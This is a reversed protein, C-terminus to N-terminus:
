SCPPLPRPSCFSPLCNVPLISLTFTQYVTRQQAMWICHSVSLVKILCAKSTGERDVVRTRIITYRGITISGKKSCTRERFEKLYTTPLILLFVDQTKQKKFLILRFSVCKPHYLKSEESVISTCQEM